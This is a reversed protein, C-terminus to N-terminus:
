WEPLNQISNWCEMPTRRFGGSGMHSPLTSDKNSLKTNCLGLMSVCQLPQSKGVTLFNTVALPCTLDYIINFLM